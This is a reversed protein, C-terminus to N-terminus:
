VVRLLIENLVGIIFWIFIFFVVFVLRTYFFVCMGVSFLFCVTCATAQSTQGTVNGYTGADCAQLDFLACYFVRIDFYM